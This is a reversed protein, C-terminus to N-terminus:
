HDIGFITSINGWVVDKPRSKPTQRDVVLIFKFVIHLLLVLLYLPPVERVESYIAVIFTM